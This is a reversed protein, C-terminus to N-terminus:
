SLGPIRAQLASIAADETVTAVGNTVTASSGLFTAQGNIIAYYGGRRSGVKGQIFIIMDDDKQPQPQPVTTGSIRSTLFPVPDVQGGGPNIELHLHVGTSNGTSGMTALPSGAAVTQGASVLITGAALHLYRSTYGSHQILVQYGGASWGALVGTSVVTGETVARVTSFGIFDTGAHLRGDRDGYGSSIPPRTTTGNPWLTPGAALALDADVATAGLVVVGAAVGAASLFSRRSIPDSLIAEFSRTESNPPSM